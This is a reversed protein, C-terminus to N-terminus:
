PVLKVIGERDVLVRTTALKELHAPHELLAEGVGIEIGVAARRHELVVLHGAEGHANAEAVLREAQQHEGFRRALAVEGLGLALEGHRQALLRRDAQVRCPHEPALLLLVPLECRQEVRAARHSRCLAEFSGQGHCLSGSLTQLTARHTMESYSAVEISGDRPGDVRAHGLPQSPRSIGM